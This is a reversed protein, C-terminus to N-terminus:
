PSNFLKRLEKHADEFNYRALASGIRGYCNKREKILAISTQSAEALEKYKNRNPATSIDVVADLQSVIMLVNTIDIQKINLIDIIRSLIDTEINRTRAFHEVLKGIDIKNDRLVVNVNVDGGAAISHNTAKVNTIEM